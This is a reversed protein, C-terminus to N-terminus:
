FSTDGCQEYSLVIQRPTSDMIRAEGSGEENSFQLSLYLSSSAGLFGTSKKYWQAKSHGMGEAQFPKEGKAWRM